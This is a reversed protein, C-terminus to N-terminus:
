AFPDMRVRRGSRDWDDSPAALGPDLTEVDQTALAVAFNFGIVDDAFFDGPYKGFRECVVALMRGNPSAAFDM